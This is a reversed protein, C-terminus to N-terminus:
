RGTIRTRGRSPEPSSRTRGPASNSTPNRGKRLNSSNSPIQKQPSPRQLLRLGSRLAPFFPNIPWDGFGRRAPFNLRLHTAEQPACRVLSGAEQKLPEAKM